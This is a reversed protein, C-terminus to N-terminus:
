AMRQGHSYTGLEVLTTTKSCNQFYPDECEMLSRTAVFEEKEFDYSETVFEHALNGGFDRRALCWKGDIEKWVHITHSRTHQEGVEVEGADGIGLSVDTPHFSTAEALANDTVQVSFCGPTQENAICLYRGVRPVTGELPLDVEFVAATVTGKRAKALPRAGRPIHGSFLANCHEQTPLSAWDALGHSKTTTVVPTLIFSSVAWRIFNRRSPSPNEM